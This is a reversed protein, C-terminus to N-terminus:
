PVRNTCHQPGFPRKSTRWLCNQTMKRELQWFFDLLLIVGSKKLKTAWFPFVFVVNCSAHDFKHTASRLFVDHKEDPRTARLPASQSKLGFCSSGMCPWAHFPVCACYLMDHKEWSKKCRWLSELVVCTWHHTFVYRVQNYTVLIDQDQLLRVIQYYMRNETKFMNPDSRIQRATEQILAMIEAKRAKTVHRVDEPGEVAAGAEGEDEVERPRKKGRCKGINQLLNAFDEDTIPEDTFPIPMAKMVAYFARVSKKIVGGNNRDSMDYHVSMAMKASHADIHALDEVAHTWSEGVSEGASILTALLKRVFNTNPIAGKHGLTEFANQLLHAILVKEATGHPTMFYVNDRMPLESYMQLAQWASNPIWIKLSGYFKWMKHNHFVLTNKHEEVSLQTNMDDRPILEWGWCRGPFCNMHVICSIFQNALHRADKSFFGGSINFCVWQKLFWPAGCMLAWGATSTSRTRKPM